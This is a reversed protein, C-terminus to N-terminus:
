FVKSRLIQLSDTLTTNYQLQWQTWDVLAEDFPCDKLFTLYTKTLLIFEATTEM